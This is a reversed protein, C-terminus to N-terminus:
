RLPSLYGIWTINFQRSELRGLLKTMMVDFQGNMKQEARMLTTYDPVVRLDLAHRLDANEKLYQQMDRHHPGHKGRRASGVPAEGGDVGVCYGLRDDLVYGSPCTPGGCAVLMAACGALGWVRMPRADCPVHRRTM